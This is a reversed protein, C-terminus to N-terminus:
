NTRASNRSTQAPVSGTSGRGQLGQPGGGPFQGRQWQRGTGSGPFQGGGPFQTQRTGTGASDGRTAAYAVGGTLGTVVVVTAIAVVPKQWWRGAPPTPIQETVTQSM